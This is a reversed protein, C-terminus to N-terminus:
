LFQAIVWGKNEGTLMGLIVIDNILQALLLARNHVNLMCGLELCQHLQEIITANPGAGILDDRLM